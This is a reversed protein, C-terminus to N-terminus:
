RTPALPAPNAEFGASAGIDFLQAINTARWLADLHKSLQTALPPAGPTMVGIAFEGQPGPCRGDFVKMPQAGIAALSWTHHDLM